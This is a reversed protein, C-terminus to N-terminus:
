TSPRSRVWLIPLSINLDVLYYRLHSHNQECNTGIDHSDIDLLM